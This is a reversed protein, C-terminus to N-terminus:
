KPKDKVVGWFAENDFPKGVKTKYIHRVKALVDVENAGSQPNCITNMYIGKFKMSAKNTTRRKLYLQNPNHYQKKMRHCFSHWVRVKFTTSDQDDDTKPDKSVNLWAQALAREENDTWGKRPAKGKGNKKGKPEVVPVQFSEQVPGEDSSDTSEDFLRLPQSQFNRKPQAQSFLQTEQVISFSFSLNLVCDDQIFSLRGRLFSRLAISINNM